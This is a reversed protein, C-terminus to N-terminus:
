SPSYLWPHDLDIYTPEGEELRGMEDMQAKM